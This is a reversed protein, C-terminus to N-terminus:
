RPRVGLAIAIMISPAARVHDKASTSSIWLIRPRGVPGVQGYLPCSQRLAILSPNGVM